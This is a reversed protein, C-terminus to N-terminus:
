VMAIAIQLRLFIIQVKSRLSTPLYDWVSPSTVYVKKVEGTEYVFITLKMLRYSKWRKKLEEQLSRPPLWTNDWTLVDGSAYSIIGYRLYTMLKISDTSLQTCDFDESFVTFM